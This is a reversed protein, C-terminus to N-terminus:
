WKRSIDQYDGDPTDYNEIAPSEVPGQSKFPMLFPDFQIAEQYLEESEQRLEDLARQQSYILRDLMQVDAMHQQQRFMCWRKLLDVRKELIEESIEPLNRKRKGLNESIDLPVECEEIPKLQRAHKELRRIQKEIKKKKREERARIIAPDLRKKKKLPEALLVPTARFPLVNNTYIERVLPKQFHLRNFKSIINQLNM